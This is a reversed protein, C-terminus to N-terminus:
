EVDGEWIILDDFARLAEDLDIDNFGIKNYPDRGKCVVQDVLDCLFYTSYENM